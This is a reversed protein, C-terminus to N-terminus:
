RFRGEWSLASTLLHENLHNLALAVVRVLQVTPHVQPTLSSGPSALAEESARIAQRVVVLEDADDAEVRLLRRHAVAVPGLLAGPPRSVSRYKSPGTVNWSQSSTCSMSSPPDSSAPKTWTM